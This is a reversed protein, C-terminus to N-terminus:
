VNVNHVVLFTKLLLYCFIEVPLEFKLKGWQIKILGM